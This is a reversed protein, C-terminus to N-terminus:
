SVRLPRSWASSRVRPTHFSQVVRVLCGSVRSFHAYPLFSSFSSSSSSAWSPAFCGLSCIFLVCICIHIETQMYVRVRYMTVYLHGLVKQPRALHQPPLVKIELARKRFYIFLAEQWFAFCRLISNQGFLLFGPVPSLFAKRCLMNGEWRSSPFFFNELIKIICFIQVLYEDYKGSAIKM